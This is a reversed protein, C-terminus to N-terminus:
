KTRTNGEGLIARGEIYDRIQSEVDFLERQTEIQSLNINTLEDITKGYVNCMSIAELRRRLFAKREALEKITM